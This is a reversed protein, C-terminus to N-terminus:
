LFGLLPNEREGEFVNLFFDFTHLTASPFIFTCKNGAPPHILLITKNKWLANGINSMYVADKEEDRHRSSASLCFTGVTIKWKKVKTRQM